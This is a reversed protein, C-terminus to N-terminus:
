VLIFKKPRKLSPCIHSGSATDTSLACATKLQPKGKPFKLNTVASDFDFGQIRSHGLFVFAESGSRRLTFPIECGYMVCILDGVRTNRPVLGMYKKRTIAFRESSCVKQPNNFQSVLEEFHSVALDAAIESLSDTTHSRLYLYKEKIFAFAPRIARINSLHGDHPLPGLPTKGTTDGNLTRWLATRLNEGTPYPSCKTAMQTCDDIFDHLSELHHEMKNLLKEQSEQTRSHTDAGQMEDLSPFGHKSIATITDFHIGRVILTDNSGLTFSPSCYYTVREHEHNWRNTSDDRKARWSEGGARGDFILPDHCPVPHPKETAWNPVWSPLDGGEDTRKGAFQLIELSKTTYLIAKAVNIFVRKESLSYDVRFPVWNSSSEQFGLLGADDALSLIGYVKDQPKTAEALQTEALLNLLTHKFECNSTPRINKLRAKVLFGLQRIAVRMCGNSIEHRKSHHSMIESLANASLMSGVITLFSDVCLVDKGCLIFAQRSALVEQIIWTRRFWPRYLIDSIAVWKQPDSAMKDPDVIREPVNGLWDMQEIMGHFADFAQMSLHNADGLWAVVVSAQQYIEKMQQVQSEQERHDDQNICLADAWLRTCGRKRLHLLALYLNESVLVMTGNVLMPVSRAQQQWTYSLAAYEGTSHLHVYLFDCEITSLTHGRRIQLLRIM